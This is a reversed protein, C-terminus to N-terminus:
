ITLIILAHKFTCIGGLWLLIRKNSAACKKIVEALAEHHCMDVKERSLWPMLEKLVIFNGHYLDDPLIVHMDHDIIERYMVLAWFSAAITIVQLFYPRLPLWEV